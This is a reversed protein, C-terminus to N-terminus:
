WQGEGASCLSTSGMLLCKVEQFAVGYVLSKSFSNPTMVSSAFLIFSTQQKTYILILFEDSKGM